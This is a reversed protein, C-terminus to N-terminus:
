KSTDHPFRILSTKQSGGDCLLWKRYLFLFFPFSFFFVCCATMAWDKHKSPVCVDFIHLSNEGTVFEWGATKKKKCERAREVIM